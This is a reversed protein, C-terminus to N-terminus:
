VSPLFGHVLYALGLSCHNVDLVLGVDGCLLHDRNFGMLKSFFFNRAVHACTLQGYIGGGGRAKKSFFFWFM